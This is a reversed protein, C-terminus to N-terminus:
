LNISCLDSLPKAVAERFFAPYAMPDCCYSCVINPLCQDLVISPAETTFIPKNAEADWDVILIWDSKHCFAQAVEAFGFDKIADRAQNADMLNYIRNGKLDICGAENDDRMCQRYYANIVDAANDESINWLNDKIQKIYESEQKM